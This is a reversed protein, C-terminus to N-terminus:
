YFEPPREEDNEDFTQNMFRQYEDAPMLKRFEGWTKSQGLAEHIQDVWEALHRPAFTATGCKRYVLDRDASPRESKAM